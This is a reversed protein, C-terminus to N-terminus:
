GPATVPGARLGCDLIHLTPVGRGSTPASSCVISALPRVPRVGKIAAINPQASGRQGLSYTGERHVPAFAVGGSVLLGFRAQRGDRISAGCAPRADPLTAGGRSSRGPTGALYRSNRKQFGQAILKNPAAFPTRRRCDNRHRDRPHDRTRAPDQLLSPRYTSPIRVSYQWRRALRSQHVHSLLRSLSFVVAIPARLECRAAQM